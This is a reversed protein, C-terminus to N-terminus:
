PGNPSGDGRRYPRDDTIADFVDAIAIIRASMPIGEGSLGEPYGTGDWREHHYLIGERVEIFAPIDEVIGAGIVPHRRVIEMEAAELRGPKDLISEPVGIKGVDHLVATKELIDLEDKEMFLRKGMLKSLNAVRESHGRTWASKADVARVLSRVMALWNRENDERVEVDKLAVGTQDALLKLRALDAGGEKRILVLSGAYFGPVQFPLNAFRLGPKAELGLASLLNPGLEALEVEFPDAFRILLSEPIESDIVFFPYRSPDSARFAEPQSGKGAAVDFGGGEPDRVVVAAYLDPSYDLVASLVQDLLLRRPGGALVARDIRNMSELALARDELERKEDEIEIHMSSLSRALAGVEDRRKLAKAPLGIGRDRAWGSLELVPKALRRGLYQSLFLCLGLWILSASIFLVSHRKLESFISERLFDVKAAVLWYDGPRSLDIFFVIRDKFGSFLPASIANSSHVFSEIRSSETPDIPALYFEDEGRSRIEYWTGPIDHNRFRLAFSLSDGAALSTQAITGLAGSLKEEGGKMLHSLFAESRDPLFQSVTTNLALGLSSVIGSTMRTGYIVIGLYSVLLGFIAFSATMKWALSVYFRRM